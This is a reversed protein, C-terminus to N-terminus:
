AILAHMDTTLSGHLFQADGAFSIRACDRKVCM